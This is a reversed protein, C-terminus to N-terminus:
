AVIKRAVIVSENNHERLYNVASSYNEFVPGEKTPLFNKESNGEEGTESEEREIEREIETESETERECEKCGSKFFNELREKKNELDKQNNKETESFEFFSFDNDKKEERKRLEKKLDSELDKVSNVSNYTKGDVIVGIKQDDNGFGLMKERMQKKENEYLSKFNKNELFNLTLKSNEDIRKSQAERQKRNPDYDREELNSIQRLINIDM